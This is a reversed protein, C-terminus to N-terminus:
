KLNTIYGYGAVLALGIQYPNTIFSQAQESMAQWTTLNSPEPFVILGVVAVGGVVNAVRNKNIKM